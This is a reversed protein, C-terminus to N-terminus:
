PLSDGGDVPGGRGGRLYPNFTYDLSVPGPLTLNRSVGYAPDLAWQGRALVKGDHTDDDHWGWFPKAM